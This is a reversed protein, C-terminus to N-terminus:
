GTRRRRYCRADALAGDAVEKALAATHSAFGARHTNEGSLRGYASSRASLRAGLGSTGGAAVAPRWHNGARMRSTSQSNMWSRTHGASM